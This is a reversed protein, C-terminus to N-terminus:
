LWPKSIWMMIDRTFKSLTVWAMIWPLISAVMMSLYFKVVDSLKDAKPSANEGVLSQDKAGAGRIDRNRGDLGHAASWHQSNGIQWGM